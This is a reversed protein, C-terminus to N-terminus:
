SAMLVTEFRKSGHCNEVFPNRVNRAHQPAEDWISILQHLRGSKLWPQWRKQNPLSGRSGLATISFVLGEYLMWCGESLAFLPAFLDDRATFEHKVVSEHWSRM